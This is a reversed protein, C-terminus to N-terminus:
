READDPPQGPDGSSGRAPDRAGAGPRPQPPVVTVRNGNVEVHDGTAITGAPDDPLVV